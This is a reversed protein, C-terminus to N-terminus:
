FMTSYGVVFPFPEGFVFLADPDAVMKGAGVEGAPCANKALEMVPQESLEKRGEEARVQYLQSSRVFFPHQLAVPKYNVFKFVVFGQDHGAAWIPESPHQSVCWFRTQEATAVGFDSVALSGVYQRSKSEYVRLTQDSSASVLINDRGIEVANVNNKHGSLSAFSYLMADAGLCQGAPAKGRTLRWCKVM